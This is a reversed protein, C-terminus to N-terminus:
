YSQCKSGDSLRPIGSSGKSLWLSGTPTSVSMELCNYAYTTSTASGVPCKLTVWIWNGGNTKLATATTSAGTIPSVSVVTPDSSTWSCASAFPASTSLPMTPSTGQGSHFITMAPLPTATPVATPPPNVTVSGTATGGTCNVQISANGATVGQVVVVNGTKVNNVFSVRNDPNSWACSAGTSMQLAVIQGVTITSNSPFVRTTMQNNSVRAINSHGKYIRLSNPDANNVDFEQFNWAYTGSTASPAPCQLDVWVWQGTYRLATATTSAGKVPSVTLVTPDSSSWICSSANAATTSLAISKGGEGGVNLLPAPFPTPTPPLPTPTRTATPAPNVTVSGIGIVGSACNVQISATGTAAGQVTVTNGTKLNSVFSVRNDSNSWVCGVGTPMQLTRTQGVTIISTSPSIPVVATGSLQDGSMQNSLILALAIIFM